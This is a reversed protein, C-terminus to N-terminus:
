GGLRRARDCKRRPGGGLRVAGGPRLESAACSRAKFAVAHRCVLEGSAPDSLWVSSSVGPFLHPVEDLLTTLVQDVDLVSVLKQSGANLVRLVDVRARVEEFLRANEIAVVVQSALSGLLRVEEPTIV